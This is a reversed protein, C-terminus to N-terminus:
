SAATEKAAKRAANFRPVDAKGVSVVGGNPLKILVTKGMMGQSVVINPEKIGAELLIDTLVDINADFEKNAADRIKGKETKVKETIREIKKLHQAVASEIKKINDALAKPLGEVVQVLVAVRALSEPKLRKRLAVKLARQLIYKHDRKKELAASYKAPKARRAIVYTGVVQLAGDKDAKLAAAVKEQVKAIADYNLLGDASLYANAASESIIIRPM